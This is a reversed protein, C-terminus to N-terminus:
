RAYGYAAPDIEPMANAEAAEQELKRKRKAERKLRRCLISSYLTL